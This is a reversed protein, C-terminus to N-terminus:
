QFGVQGPDPSTPQVDCIPLIPCMEAKPLTARFCSLLVIVNITIITIIIKTDNSCSYCHMQLQQSGWSHGLLSM